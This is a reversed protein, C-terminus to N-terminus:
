ANWNWLGDKVTAKEEKELQKLIRRATGYVTGTDATVEKITAGNGNQMKLFQSILKRSAGRKNRGHPTKPPPAVRAAIGDAAGSPTTSALDQRVQKIKADLEKADALKKDRQREWLPIMQEAMEATLEVTITKM